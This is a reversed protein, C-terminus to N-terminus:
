EAVNSGWIAYGLTSQVSSKRFTSKIQFYEPM